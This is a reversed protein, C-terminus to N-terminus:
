SASWDGGDLASALSHTSSYMWVGLVGVNVFDTSGVGFTNYHGACLAPRGPLNVLWGVLWGVL